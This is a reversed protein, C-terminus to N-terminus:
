RGERQSLGIQELYTTYSLPLNETDCQRECPRECSRDSPRESQRESLKENQRDFPRERREPGREGRKVERGERHCLGIQALSTTYTLPM